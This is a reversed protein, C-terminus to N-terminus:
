YFLRRCSRGPGMLYGCTEGAAWMGFLLVQLPLTALLRGRHRRKKWYARSWRWLLLPPLGPALCARLARQAPTWDASRMGAFCRGHDFRSSLFDAFPIPKALRVLLEPALWLPSGAAAIDWNVFTKWFVPFRPREGDFLAARKYTINCGPVIGHGGAEVPPMFM